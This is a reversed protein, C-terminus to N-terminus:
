QQIKRFYDLREHGFRQKPCRVNPGAFRDYVVSGFVILLQLVFRVIKKKKEHIEAKLGRFLNAMM